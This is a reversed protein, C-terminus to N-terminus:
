GTMELGLVGVHSSYVPNYAIGILCLEGAHTLAEGM